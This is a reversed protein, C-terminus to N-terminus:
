VESDIFDKVLFVSYFTCMREFLANFRDTGEQAQRYLYAIGDEIESKLGATFTASSRDALRILRMVDGERRLEYAVSRHITVTSPDTLNAIEM